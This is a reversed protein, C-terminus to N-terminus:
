KQCLKASAVELLCLKQLLKFFSQPIADQFVHLWVKEFLMAVTISHKALHASTLLFPLSSSGKQKRM